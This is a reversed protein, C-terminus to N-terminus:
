FDASANTTRGARVNVTVSLRGREPHVFLVTHPGSPLQVVRPAKGLPRGDLVVGAPPNSTIELAGLPGAGTSKTSARRPALEPSQERQVTAPPPAPQPAEPLPTIFLDAASTEPSTATAEFQVSTEFQVHRTRTENRPTLPASAASHLRPLTPAHPPAIGDMLAVAMAAVLLASLALVWPDGQQMPLRDPAGGEDNSAVFPGPPESHPTPISEPTAELPLAPSASEALKARKAREAPGIGVLTRDSSDFVRVESSKASDSSGLGVLTRDSSDFHRVESSNASGSSGIGALTKDDSDFSYPPLERTETEVAQNEEKEVADLGADFSPPFPDFEVSNPLPDLEVSNPFPDLEVSLPFPDLEVALPFPDLEVSLMEPTAM